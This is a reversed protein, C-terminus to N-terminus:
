SIYLMLFINIIHPLMSLAWYRQSEHILVQLLVHFQACFFAVMYNNYISPIFSPIYLTHPNNNLLYIHKWNVFVWNGIHNKKIIIYLSTPNVM